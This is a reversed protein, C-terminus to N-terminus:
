PQRGSLKRVVMLLECLWYPLEIKRSVMERVYSGFDFPLRRVTVRRTRDDYICYSSCLDNRPYGVSGVNVIYRSTAACRFSVSEAKDAPVNLRSEFKPRVEGKRTREWVAAHHTHGCFLLPEKRASFNLAADQREIVYDWSRPSVFDGHVCAFGDKAFVAERERLWRRAEDSLQARAARDLDYNRNMTVQFEPELGVCASDHNGLLVVDFGKRAIELAAPSDYGYGTIDGLLLFKGCGRRRADALATELARPNAHVDSMIAYKM